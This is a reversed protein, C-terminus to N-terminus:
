SSSKAIEEIRRALGELKNELALVRYSLNEDSGRAATVPKPPLMTKLVNGIHEPGNNFGRTEPKIPHSQMPMNKQYDKLFRISKVFDSQTILMVLDITNFNKDCRFCRALNTAPKVSTNFENCRPCLFRFCGQTNRWPIDLANKILADVPIDNRLKYLEQSSLRKTTM